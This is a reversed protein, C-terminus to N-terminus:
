KHIMAGNIMAAVFPFHEFYDQESQSTDEYPLPMAVRPGALYKAGSLFFAGRLMGNGIPGEAVCVIDCGDAVAHEVHIEYNKTQYGKKAYYDVLYEASEWTRYSWRLDENDVDIQRNLYNARRTSTLFGLKPQDYGFWGVLKIAADVWLIKEQNNRGWVTSSPGIAFINGHVDEIVCPNQIRLENEKLKIGLRDKLGRLLGHEEVNGRVIGEIDGRMAVEVMKAHIEAMDPGAPISELVGEVPQGVVVVDAVEKQARAVSEAISPSHRGQYLGILVKPRRKSALEKVKKRFDKLM